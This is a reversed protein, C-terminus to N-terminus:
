GHLNLEMQPDELGGRSFWNWNDIGMALEKLNRIIDHRHFNALCAWLRARDEESYESMEKNIANHLAEQPDVGAQVDLELLAVIRDGLTM